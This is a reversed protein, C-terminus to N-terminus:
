HVVDHHRDRYPEIIMVFDANMEETIQHLLDHALGSDNLNGQLMSTMKDYADQGNHLLLQTQETRRM